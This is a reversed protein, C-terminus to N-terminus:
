SYVFLYIVAFPTVFFFTLVISIVFAKNKLRDIKGDIAAMSVETKGKASRWAM